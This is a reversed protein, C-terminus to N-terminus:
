SLYARILFAINPVDFKNLIRGMYNLHVEYTISLLQFCSNKFAFCLSVIENIRHLIRLNLDRSACHIGVLM